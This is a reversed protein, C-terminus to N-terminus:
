EGDASQDKKTFNARPSVGSKDGRAVALPTGDQIVQLESRVNNEASQSNM